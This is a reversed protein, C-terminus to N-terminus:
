TTSRSAPWAGNRTSRWPRTWAAPRPGAVRGLAPDDRGEGQRLRHHAPCTSRRASACSTTSGGTRAVDAGLRRRHAHIRPRPAGRLRHLAEDHGHEHGAHVAREPRSLQGVVLGLRGQGAQDLVHRRHRLAPEPQPRPLEDRDAAGPRRGVMLVRWPRRRRRRRSSRSTRGARADAAVALKSTLANPMGPVGGVYM